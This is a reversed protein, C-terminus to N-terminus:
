ISSSSTSSPPKSSSTPSRPQHNHQHPGRNDVHDGGVYEVDDDIDDNDFDDDGIEVLMMLMM